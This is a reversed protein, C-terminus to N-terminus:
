SPLEGYSSSPRQPQELLQPELLLTIQLLSLPLDGAVIYFGSEM